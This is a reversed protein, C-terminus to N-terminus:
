YTCIRCPDMTRSMLQARREKYSPDNYVELLTQNNLDGINWQSDAGSHMCCLSVQGTAMISLEWWRTCAENPVEDWDTADYGLWGTNPIRVVQFKPWRDQCYDVFEHNDLGVASVVVPHPFGKHLRDLNKRVRDFPLNMLAKYHDPDVSNLSVWLHALNPIEAIKDINKETLPHGNTFLRIKGATLRQCIDFLRKDLLPENVKFPSFSFPLAFDNMEDVLRYILDTSMKTGKRELTPYPCFTCAANCLALTEISVEFPQDLYYKHLHRLQDTQDPRKYSSPLPTM